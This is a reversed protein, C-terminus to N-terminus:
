AHEDPKKLDSIITPNQTIYYVDGDLDGGAM